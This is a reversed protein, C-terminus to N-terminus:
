GFGSQIIGLVPCGQAAAEVSLAKSSDRVSSSVTAGAGLDAAQVESHSIMGAFRVLDTLGREHALKVASGKTSAGGILTM